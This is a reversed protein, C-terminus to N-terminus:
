YALMDYTDAMVQQTLGIYKRTIATSSHSLLESLRVLADESRNGAMTYVRKAFTKRLSHTSFRKVSLRYKVKIGKFMVNLRDATYPKGIKSLFVLEDMKRIRLKEYCPVIITRKFTDNVKIIRRKGTKKEHIIFTDEDLLDHWTLRLLDSIRLGFFIGCGVLLAIRYNGDKFLRNMLSIAEDWDLPEATTYTGKASMDTLTKLTETHKGYM